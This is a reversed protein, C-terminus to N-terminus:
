KKEEKDDDVEALTPDLGTKIDLLQLLKTTFGGLFLVTFLAIFLTTTLITGGNPTPVHISLAFALAGRLGAFWVMFQHKGSIKNTRRFCNVIWTLPFVHAARAFLCILICILILLPDYEHNFSFIAM